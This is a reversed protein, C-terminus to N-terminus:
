HEQLLNYRVTRSLAESIEELLAIGRQEEELTSSFLVRKSVRDIQM